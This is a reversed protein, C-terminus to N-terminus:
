TARHEAWVHWQSQSQESEWHMTPYKSASRKERSMWVDSCFPTLATYHRISPVTHVKSWLIPSKRSSDTHSIQNTVSMVWQLKLGILTISQAGRKVLVFTFCSQALLVRCTLGSTLCTKFLVFVLSLILGLRAENSPYLHAWHAEM